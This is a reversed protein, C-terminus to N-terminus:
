SVFCSKFSFYGHPISLITKFSVNISSFHFVFHNHLWILFYACCFRINMSHFPFVSHTEHFFTQTINTFPMIIIIISLLLDHPFYDLETIIYLPFWNLQIFGFNTQNSKNTDSTSLYHFAKQKHATWIM